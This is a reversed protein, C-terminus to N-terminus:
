EGPLRMPPTPRDLFNGLRANQLTDRLSVEYMDAGDVIRLIQADISLVLGLSPAHIAGTADIRRYGLPM